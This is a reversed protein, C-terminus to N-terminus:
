SRLTWRQDSENSSEPATTPSEGLRVATHRKEGRVRGAPVSDGNSMTCLACSPRATIEGTSNVLSLAGQLKIKAPPATVRTGVACSPVTIAGAPTQILEADTPPTANRQGPRNSRLQGSQCWASHHRAVLRAVSSVPPPCSASPGSTSELRTLQAPRGEAVPKM